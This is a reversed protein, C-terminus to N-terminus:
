NRNRKNADFYAEWVFIIFKGLLWIGLIILLFIAIVRLFIGLVILLPYLLVGLLALVSFGFLFILGVVFAKM